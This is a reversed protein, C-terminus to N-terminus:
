ASPRHGAIRVGPFVTASERGAAECNSAPGARNGIGEASEPLLEQPPEDPGIGTAAREVKAVEQIELRRGGLRTGVWVTFEM